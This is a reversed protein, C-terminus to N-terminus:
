KFNMVFSVSNQPNINGTKELISKLSSFTDRLIAAPDSIEILLPNGSLRWTAFELALFNCDRNKKLIQTLPSLKM